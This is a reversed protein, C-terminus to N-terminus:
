FSSAFIYNPLVNWIEVPYVSAYWFPSLSNFNFYSNKKLVTSSLLNSFLMCHILSLCFFRLIDSCILSAHQGWFCLLFNGIISSVKSFFNNRLFPLLSFCTTYKWLLPITNANSITFSTKGELAYKFISICKEWLFYRELCTKM